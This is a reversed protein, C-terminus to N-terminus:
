QIYSRLETRERNWVAQKPHFVKLTEEQSPRRSEKTQMGKISTKLTHQQSTKSTTSANKNNNGKSDTNKKGDKKKSASPNSRHNNIKEQNNSNTMTKNSAGDKEQIAQKRESITVHGVSARNKYLKSKPMTHDSETDDVTRPNPCLEKFHQKYLSAINSQIKDDLTELEELKSTAIKLIYELRNLM